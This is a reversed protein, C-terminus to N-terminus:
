RHSNVLKLLRVKLMDNPVDWVKDAIFNAITPYLSSHMVVLIVSSLLALIGCSVSVTLRVRRGIDVPVAGSVETPVPRKWKGYELAVITWM